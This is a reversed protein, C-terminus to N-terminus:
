GVKKASTAARAALRRYRKALRRAKRSHASAAGAKASTASTGAVDFVVSAPTATIEALTATPAAKIGIGASDGVAIDSLSVKDGAKSFRTNADTLFTIEGDSDEALAAKANKTTKAVQLTITKATEDVGTVKGAFGYFSAKTYAAVMWAPQDTVTGGTSPDFVIAVLVADGAQLQDLTADDGNRTVKTDADTKFTITQTASTDNGVAADCHHGSGTGGASRFSDSGADGSNTDTTGTDGSGSGPGQGFGGGFPGGPGFGHHGHHGRGGHHGTTVTATVTGATADTSVVTGRFVQVDPGDNSPGDGSRDALAPAVATATFAATAVMGILLRRIM